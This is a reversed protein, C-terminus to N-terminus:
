LEFLKSMEENQKALLIDGDVSGDLEIVENLERNKKNSRSGIFLYLGAMCAGSATMFLANHLQEKRRGDYIGREYADRMNDEKFEVKEIDFLEKFM